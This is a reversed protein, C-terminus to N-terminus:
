GLRRGSGLPSQGLTAFRGAGSALRSAGIGLAHFGRARQPFAERSPLVEVADVEVSDLQGQQLAEKAYWARSAGLRQAPM